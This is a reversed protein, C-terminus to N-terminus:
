RFCKYTARSFNAKYEIKITEFVDWFLYFLWLKSIKFIKPRIKLLLPRGPYIYLPLLWPNNQNRAFSAHSGPIRPSTKLLTWPCPVWISIKFVSSTFALYWKDQENKWGLCFQTLQNVKYIWTMTNFLKWLILIEHYWKVHNFVEIRIEIMHQRWINKHPFSKFM